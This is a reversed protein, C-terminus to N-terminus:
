FHAQVFAGGGGTVPMPAALLAAEKPAHPATLYVVLASVLAAGGVSFAILAGTTLDPDPPPSVCGTSSQNNAAALLAAGVGAGVFGAGALGYAFWRQTSGANAPVPPPPPAAAPEIPVPAVPPLAAAEAHPGVHGVALPTAADVHATFTHVAQGAATFAIAHDGPDIALPLNWAEPPIRSGDVELEASGSAAVPVDVTLRNLRPELAQARNHATEARKADNRERALKEAARFEQWASATRGM